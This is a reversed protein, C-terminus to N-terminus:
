GKLLDIKKYIEENVNTKFMKNLTKNKVVKQLCKNNKCIYISRGFVNGNNVQFENDCFTIQHMSTKTKDFKNRCAICTRINKM